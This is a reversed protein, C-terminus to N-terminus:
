DQGRWLGEKGSGGVGVGPKSEGSALEQDSVWWVAARVIEMVCDLEEADRPAYVM